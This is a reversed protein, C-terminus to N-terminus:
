SFIVVPRCIYLFNQLAELGAKRILPTFWRFSTIGLGGYEVDSHFYGNPTDKPLFMWRRVYALIKTDMSILLGVRINGTTAQYIMLPIM